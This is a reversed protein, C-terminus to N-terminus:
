KRATLMAVFVRSAFSLNFLVCPDKKEQTPKGPNDRVGRAEKGFKESYHGLKLLFYSPVKDQM